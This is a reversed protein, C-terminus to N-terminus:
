TTRGNIMKNEKTESLNELMRQTTVACKRVLSKVKQDEAYRYLTKYAESLYIDAKELSLLLARKEGGTLTFAYDFNRTTQLVIRAQSSFLIEGFRRIQRSDTIIPEITKTGHLMEIFFKLEDSKSASIPKKLHQPEKEIDLGVYYKVNPDTLATYFVGFEKEVKSTDINFDNKAQLFVRFAIYNNRITVAKSGIEQAIQYFTSKASTEILHNIFRAKSLADWKKTQTIHRFGLIARLEKDRQAHIVVPVRQLKEITGRKEAEAVLEEWDAKKNSIRRASQDTLFKLCALRRNGEVILIKDDSSPIGILPEEKFFGNDVMSRAVPFLDYKEELHLLLADQSYGEVDPSLRPNQSDFLLRTILIEPNLGITLDKALSMRGVKLGYETISM